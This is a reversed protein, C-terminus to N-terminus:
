RRGVIEFEDPPSVLMLTRGNDWTVDIQHWADAGTGLRRVGTVNGLQGPEIPNPDNRMNILRVRDGPKPM